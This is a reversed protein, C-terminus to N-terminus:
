SRQDLFDLVGKLNSAIADPQIDLHELQVGLRNIWITSYGFWKAGVADWSAFAVFAIEHLKLAFHGPGMGYAVPSPKFVRVRDTTMHPEFYQELKAEALNSHLMDGSLNSLFAMRINRRRLEALAEPADPWPPLKKYMGMLRERQANTISLQMESAAQQMADETVQWFDKYRNGITRLWTYEFQRTRWLSTFEKGRGPFLEESCETIPRPDFVVFADFAIAKIRNHKAGAIRESFSLTAVATVSLLSIFERREMRM